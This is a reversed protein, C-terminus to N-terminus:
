MLVSCNPCAGSVIASSALVKAAMCFASQNAERSEVRLLRATSSLLTVACVAM